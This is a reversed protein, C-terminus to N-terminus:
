VHGLHWNALSREYSMANSDFRMHRFNPAGPFTSSDTPGMGHCSSCAQEALAEGRAASAARDSESACGLISGIASAVALWRAARISHWPRPRRERWQATPNPMPDDDECLGRIAM